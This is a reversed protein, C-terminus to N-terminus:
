EGGEDDINKTAKLSTTTGGMYRMLVRRPHDVV